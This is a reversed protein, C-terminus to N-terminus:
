SVLAVVGILYAVTSIFLFLLAAFLSGFKRWSMFFLFPLHAVDTVVSLIERFNVLSECVINTYIYQITQHSHAWDQCFLCNRFSCRWSGSIFHYLYVTICRTLEILFSNGRSDPTLITYYHISCGTWQLAPRSCISISRHTWLLQLYSGRSALCLNPGSFKLTNM